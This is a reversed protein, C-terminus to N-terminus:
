YIKYINIIIIYPISTVKFLLLDIRYLNKWLYRRKVCHLILPNGYNLIHLLVPFLCKKKQQQLNGESFTCWFFDGLCRCLIPWIRYTDSFIFLLIGNYCRCSRFIPPPTSSTDNREYTRRRTTPLVIDPSICRVLTSM